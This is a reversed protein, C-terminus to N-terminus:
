KARPKFRINQKQLDELLEEPVKGNVQVAYLGPVFSMIRQWKAVWSEKPKMM